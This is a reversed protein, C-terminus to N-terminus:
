QEKLRKFSNYLIWRNFALLYDYAIVGLRSSGDLNLSWKLPVRTEHLDCTEKV